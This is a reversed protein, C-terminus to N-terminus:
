KPEEERIAKDLAEMDQWIAHAIDTQCDDCLVVDDFEDLWHTNGYPCPKTGDKAPDCIVWGEIYDQSTNPKTSMGIVTHAM